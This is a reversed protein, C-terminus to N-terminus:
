QDVEQKKLPTIHGCSRCIWENSKLRLYGNSVGCNECSPKNRKAAQQNQKKKEKAM